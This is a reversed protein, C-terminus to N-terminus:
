GLSIANYYLTAGYLTNKVFIFAIESYNGIALIDVFQWILNQNLFIDGVSFISEMFYEEKKLEHVFQFLM